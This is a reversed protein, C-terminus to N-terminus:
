NTAKFLIDKQSINGQGDVGYLRIVQDGAFNSPIFFRFNMEFEDIKPEYQGNYPNNGCVASARLAEWSAAYIIDHDSFIAKVLLEDGPKLTPTGTPSIVKLTPPENTSCTTLKSNISKSCSSFVFIIFVAVFFLNRM